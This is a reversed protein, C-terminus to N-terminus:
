WRFFRPRKQRRYLFDVGIGGVVCIILASVVDEKEPITVGQLLVTALFSLLLLLASWCSITLGRFLVRVALKRLQLRHSFLLLVRSRVNGFARLSNRGMLEPLGPRLSIRVLASSRAQNLSRPLNRVVLEPLGPRLAVRLLM